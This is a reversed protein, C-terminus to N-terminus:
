SCDWTQRMRQENDKWEDNREGGPEAHLKSPIRKVNISPTVSVTNRTVGRGVTDAEKLVGATIGRTVESRMKREQNEEKRKAKKEKAEEQCSEAVSAQYRKINKARAM